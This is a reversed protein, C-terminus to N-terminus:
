PRIEPWASWNNRYKQLSVGGCRVDDKHFAIYFTVLTERWKFTRGAGEREHLRLLEKRPIILFERWLGGHFVTFVYWLDPERRTQLQRRSVGFIAYINKTGKGMASKVQIRSLRGTADEIVFIDEGMDIEPVAANYGRRLFEALVVLQGSRGIYFERRGAM